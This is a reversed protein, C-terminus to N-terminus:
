ILQKRKHKLQKLYTYYDIYVYSVIPLYNHDM